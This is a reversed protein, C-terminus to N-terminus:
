YASNFARRDSYGLKCLSAFALLACLALFLTSPEPVMASNGAGPTADGFGTKWVDYDGSDILGNVNGDAATGLPVTQGLSDRWVTYDAANVLGNHTYDGGAAPAPARLYTFPGGLEGGGWETVKFDLYVDDSILHIVADLGVITTGVHGGYAASWPAFCLNAWNTAAITKGDNNLITAWETDTPRLKTVQDYSSEVFANYLGSMDSRTLWVRGTIRDQNHAQTPDAYASKSFAFDLGSWVAPSACVATRWALVIFAASILVKYRYSM